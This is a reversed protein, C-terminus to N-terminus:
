TSVIAGSRSGFRPAQKPGPRMREGRDPKTSRRAMSECGAAWGGYYALNSAVLRYVFNDDPAAFVAASSSATEIHLSEDMQTATGLTKTATTTLDSMQAQVADGSTNAGYVYNNVLVLPARNLRYWEMVDSGCIGSAEIRVLLEGTEIEPVPMEEIRIDRNNYWMAVRM